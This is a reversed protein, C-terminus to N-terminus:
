QGTWIPDWTLFLCLWLWLNLSNALVKHKQFKFVVKCSVCRRFLSSLIHLYSISRAHIISSVSRVRNQECVSLRISLTFGTYGRWSRQTPPIIVCEFNYRCREPVLPNVWQPRTVCPLMSRPWCQNLYHSAEQRCWAMVQVLISKDDNLVLSM